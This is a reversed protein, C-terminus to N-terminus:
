SSKIYIISYDKTKLIKSGLPEKLEIKTSPSCNPAWSIDVNSKTASPSTFQWKNIHMYTLATCFGMFTKVHDLDVPMSKGSMRSLYLVKRSINFM